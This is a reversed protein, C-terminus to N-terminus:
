EGGVEYRVFLVPDSDRVLGSVTTDPEIISTQDMLVRRTYFDKLKGKVILPIVSAPKGALRMETEIAESLESVVEDPVDESDAYTPNMAAVQMAIANAPAFPVMARIGSVMAGVAPPLGPSRSHLYLQVPGPLSTARRLVLHEGLVSSAAAIRDAVAGDRMPVDLLEDTDATGTFSADILASLIDDALAQFEPTKAVFDTECNLEIMVGDRSAILGEAATREQDIKKGGRLAEAAVDVDGGAADLAKKCALAGAGTIDRLLKVDSM